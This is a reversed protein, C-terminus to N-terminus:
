RSKRALIGYYIPYGNQNMVGRIEYTLIEVECHYYKGDPASELYKVSDPMPDICQYRGIQIVEDSVSRKTCELPGDIFVVTSV